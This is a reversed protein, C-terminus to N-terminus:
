KNWPLPFHRLSLPTSVVEHAIWLAKKSPLSQVLERVPVRKEREFLAGEAEALRVADSVLEGIPRLGIEISRDEIATHTEYTDYKTKFAFKEGTFRKQPPLAKKVKLKQPLPPPAVIRPKETRAYKDPAYEELEDGEEQWPEYGEQEPGKREPGEKKQSVVVAITSVISYAIALMALIMVIINSIDM